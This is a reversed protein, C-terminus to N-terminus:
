NAYKWLFGYAYKYKGKCCKSINTQYYGLQYEIEMMCEWTRIFEGSLTYQNVAKASSYRKNDRHTMWELNSVKNNTKDEDKHNVETLNNPNPLFANAVLRHVKYCKVKGDKWLGVQLYGRGCKRPKVIREKGFKLSKVNGLNSVQYLREFGKIDRWEEIERM